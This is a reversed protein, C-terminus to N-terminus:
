TNQDRSHIDIFGGEEGTVPNIDIHILEKIKISIIFACHQTRDVSGKTRM